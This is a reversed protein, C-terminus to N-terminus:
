PRVSILVIKKEATLLKYYMVNVVTEPHEDATGSLFALSM